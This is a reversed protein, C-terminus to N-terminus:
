KKLLKRLDGKLVKGEAVEQEAHLVSFVAQDEILREIAMRILSAKNDGYGQKILDNLAKEMNPKLPVSVTSM